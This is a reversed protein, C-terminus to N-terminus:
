SFILVGLCGADQDLSASAAFVFLAPLLLMYSLMYALRTFLGDYSSEPNPIRSLCSESPLRMRVMMTMLRIVIQDGTM